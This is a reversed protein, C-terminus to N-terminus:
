VDGAGGLIKIAAIKGKMLISVSSQEITGM